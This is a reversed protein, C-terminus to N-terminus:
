TGLIIEDKNLIIFNDNWSIGVRTKLTADMENPKLRPNEDIRRGCSDPNCLTVALMLGFCDYITESSAPLQIPLIFCLNLTM